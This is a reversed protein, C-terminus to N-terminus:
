SGWGRYDQRRLPPQGGGALRNWGGGGGIHAPLPGQRRGGRASRSLVEGCRRPHKHVRRRARVSHLTPHHHLGRGGRIVEQEGLWKSYLYPYAQNEQVGIASVHVLHRVGEDRAAQVVSETGPPKNRDFTNRGRERIIAVLHVAADVGRQM